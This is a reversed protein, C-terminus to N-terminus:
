EGRGPAPPLPTPSAAALLGVTQRVAAKDSEGNRESHCGSAAYGAQNGLWRGTKERMPTHPQSAAVCVM